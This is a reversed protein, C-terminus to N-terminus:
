NEYNAAKAELYEIVYNAYAVLLEADEGDSLTVHFSEKEDKVAEDRADKIADLDNLTIFAM